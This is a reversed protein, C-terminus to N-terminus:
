QSQIDIDSVKSKQPGRGELVYLKRGAGLGAVIAIMGILGLFVGTVKWGHFIDHLFGTLLPGLAAFTYGVGQAMGSLRAATDGDRTRVALLTLAMSFTGGQGLGLVIVSLWLLNLPAYICGALGFLTLTVVVFIMARQDRMHSAIWPAIIATIVQFMISVSLALGATVADLGRDQLISPLWGFMTYALASQLGMYLTVQWALSDRYLSKKAATSPKPFHKADLQRWWVFAAVAAPLLWFSLALRWNNDFLLRLPETAGAAIAAGVCLVATYMGTLLSVSNPFDRKVIGPLLVGMVGICGGALASGIFLGIVGMYPRAMLNMALFIVAILVTREMGLRRAIVPALPAALGLFLVPLTTLAGQGVPTLALDEGLRRLVPSVSTLAPRLNLAVLMLSLLTLIAYRLSTDHRRSM